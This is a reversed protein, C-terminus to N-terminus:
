SCPKPDSMLTNLGNQTSVLSLCPDLRLKRCASLQEKGIGNTSFATKEEDYTKPVKTLFLTPM